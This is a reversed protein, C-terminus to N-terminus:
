TTANFRGDLSAASLHIMHPTAISVISSSQILDHLVPLVTIINLMGIDLNHKIYNHQGPWVTAM